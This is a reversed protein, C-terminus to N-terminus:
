AVVIGAITEGSGIRDDVPAPSAINGENRWPFKL